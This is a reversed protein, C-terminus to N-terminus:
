RIGRVPARCTTRRARGRCGGRSPPRGGRDSGRRGCRTAGRAWRPRARRRRRRDTPRWVSRLRPGAVRPRSGHAGSSRSGGPASEGMQATMTENIEPIPPCTGMSECRVRETGVEPASRPARQSSVLGRNKVGGRDARKRPGDANEQIRPGSVGAGCKPRPSPAPTVAHPPPKFAAAFSHPPRPSPSAPARRRPVHSDVFPFPPRQPPPATTFCGREGSNRSLGTVPRVRGYVRTFFRGVAPWVFM